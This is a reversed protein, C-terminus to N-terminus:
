KTRDRLKIQHDIQEKEEKILNTEKHEQGIVNRVLVKELTDNFRDKYIKKLHKLRRCKECLNTLYCWEEECFICSLM